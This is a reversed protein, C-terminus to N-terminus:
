LGIPVDSRPSLSLSMPWYSLAASIMVGNLLLQVVPSVKINHEIGLSHGIGDISMWMEHSGGFRGM